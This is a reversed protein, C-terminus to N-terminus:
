NRPLYRSAWTAILAAAYQADAERTLLHDAGDLAIFSRPHRAAEFIAKAEVVHVVHDDPAHMVLLACDLAGIRAAPTQAELDDVFAQTITFPRGALSVTAQGEAAIRERHEDFHRAVHLPDFPAGITAVARRAEIGSAAALVAAGGLSHGILLSPPGHHQELWAAAALLDGVNSSFSTDAFDGESQGLGTFDFRLVGIGHAALARAIYAAAKSDKSCTFCHAFIAWAVPVGDPM